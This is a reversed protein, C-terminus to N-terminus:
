LGPRIQPLRPVVCRPVVRRVSGLGVSVRLHQIAIDDHRRGDVVVYRRLVDGAVVGVTVDHIEQGVVVILLRRGVMRGVHGVIVVVHLAVVRLENLRLLAASRLLVLQLVRSPFLILSSCHRLDHTPEFALKRLVRRSDRGTPPMYVFMYMMVIMM